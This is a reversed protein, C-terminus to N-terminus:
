LHRDPCLSHNVNLYTANLEREGEGTKLATWNDFLFLCIAYIYKLKCLNTKKENVKYVFTHKFEMGCVCVHRIQYIFSLSFFVFWLRILIHFCEACIVAFVTEDDDDDSNIVVIHCQIQLHLIASEIFWLIRNWKWQFIFVHLTKRDKKIVWEICYIGNLQTCGLFALVVVKCRWKKCYVIYIEHAKLKVAFM